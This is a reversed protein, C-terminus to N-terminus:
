AKQKNSDLLKKFNKLTHAAEKRNLLVGNPIEGAIAFTLINIPEKSKAKAVVLSFNQAIYHNTHKHRQITAKM